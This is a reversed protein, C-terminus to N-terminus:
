KTHKANACAIENLNVFYYLSVIGRLTSTALISVPNMRTEKVANGPPDPGYVYLVSM